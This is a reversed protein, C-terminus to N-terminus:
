FSFEFSGCLPYDRWHTVLGDRVPNHLVYEAAVRLDEPKRLGRDYFSRQWFPRSNGCRRRAAFCLSKFSGVFRTVSVGPATGLLLHVHDPMLCYAYVATGTEESLEKLISICELGFESDGFVPSRPSTGITISFARGGEGYAVSNLRIRKRAPRM